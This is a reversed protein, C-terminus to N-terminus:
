LTNRDKAQACQAQILSAVETDTVTNESQMSATGGTATKLPM